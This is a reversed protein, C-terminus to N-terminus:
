GEAALEALVSRLRTTREKAHPGAVAAALKQEAGQVVSLHREGRGFATYVWSRTLAQGDGPVVVVAAPWRRGAAEQATLAWGHRVTGAVEQRPVLVPGDECVLRLGEPDAGAVTGTALRGPAPVHVVRDGPDFGGFRGPGPNLREKLAANLAQTGAPGGHEATVVQTEQPQVGFARPVSDAVLQVARHVAEGPARVPVVVVEKGPAEVAALEGVAVYSTLEGIPGPDPTRSVIRPCVKAALLDAFARGPGQSWLANPDGSLVLRAGDPVAEVLTAAEEASLQQADLVVLVDVPLTGDAARPSALLGSVTFASEEGLPGALRRRGNETWAAARARLGAARAAAALAVPEARAAEGGSHVVLGHAAAARILEAASPSPASREAAAWDPDRGVDEAPRQEFARLLRVCGDALSEEALAYRDLAFLVPVEAGAGEEAEAGDEAEEFAGPAEQAPGGGSEARFVLVGGEEVAAGLATDPDPVGARALAQRLTGGELATHGQEAAYGLMYAVVARGRRVDGPGAEAGLLARAFADADRPQVLGGGLGLVLWPDAALQQAAGGGLTRVLAEALGEPAGGRTLVARVADVAAPDVPANAAVARRVEAPGRVAQAAGAARAGQQVQGPEADARASGSAAATDQPEAAGPAAEPAAGPTDSPDDAAEPSADPSADRVTEPATAEPAGEPADSPDGEAEAAAERAESADAAAEPVGEAGEAEAAASEPAAASGGAEALEAARMAETEAAM